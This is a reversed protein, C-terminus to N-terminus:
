DSATPLYDGDVWEEGAPGVERKWIPVIQKLRDIAYRCAEFCGQDRHGSSVAIVVAVEGVELHGIRQAIAIDVIQPWRARAEDAVQRLKALAMEEYAEYELYAVEKGESVNRVVGAFSVVSGTHPFVVAKAVEEISIPEFTVRFSDEGGSVPPFIAVDDGDRLLSDPAAFEQNISVITRATVQALGPYEAQLTALLDEVTAGEGLEQELTSEGVIERLRAFLKVTVLM